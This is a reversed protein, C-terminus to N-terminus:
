SREGHFDQGHRKRDDRSDFRARCRNCGFPKPGVERRAATAVAVEGLQNEWNETTRMNEVEEM